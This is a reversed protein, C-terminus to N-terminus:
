MFLRMGFCGIWCSSLLVQHMDVGPASQLLTPVIELRVLPKPGIYCLGPVVHSMSGGM